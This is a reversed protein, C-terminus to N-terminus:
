YLQCVVKELKIRIKGIKKGFKVLNEVKVVNKLFLNGVKLNIKKM